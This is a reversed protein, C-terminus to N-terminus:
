NLPQSQTSILPSVFLGLSTAITVHGLPTPHCPWYLFSHRSITSGGVITPCAHAYVYMHVCGCVKVCVYSYGYCVHVSVYECM